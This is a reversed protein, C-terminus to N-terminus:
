APSTLFYRVASSYLNATSSSHRLICSVSGCRSSPCQAAWSRTSGAMSSSRTRRRTSFRARSRSCVRSSWDFPPANFTDATVPAFLGLVYLPAGHARSLRLEAHAVQRELVPAVLRQQRGHAPAGEAGDATALVLERDFRPLDVPCTRRCCTLTELWSQSVLPVPRVEIESLLILTGLLKEAERDAEVSGITLSNSEWERFSKSARTSADDTMQEAIERWPQGADSRHM